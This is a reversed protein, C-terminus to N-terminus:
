RLLSASRARGSTGNGPWPHTHLERLLVLRVTKDDSGSIAKTGDWTFVAKKISKEHGQMVLPDIVLSHALLTTSQSVRGSDPQNLDFRRIGKDNCGTLLFGRDKM